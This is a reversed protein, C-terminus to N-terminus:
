ATRAARASWRGRRWWRACRRRWSSRTAGSDGADADAAGARPRARAAGGAAGGREGAPLSDLRLQSYARRAAGATSTSPATTSWSCSALPAAPEGRPQGASGPDRWRDLAPGRLGRAAAAGPEGAAAPAQDRRADAAPAAAPRLNQWAPDEIPVDLLALLPSLLPELARDLGLVRGLVKARM